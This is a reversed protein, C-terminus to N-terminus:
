ASRGIEDALKERVEVYLRWPVGYLVTRSESQRPSATAM